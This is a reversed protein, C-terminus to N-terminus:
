LSLPSPHPDGDVSRVLIEAGSPDIVCRGSGDDLIFLDESEGNEITKWKNNSDKYEIIYRYWLCPLLLNKSLLPVDSYAKGQGTLEVYGQAASVIKSTPTDRITRMRYLASIWAILSIAMMASLIVQWSPVTNIKLGVVLLLLQAGSIIFQAYQRRLKVLM